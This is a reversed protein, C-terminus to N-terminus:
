YNLFGDINDLRKYLRKIRTYQSPTLSNERQQLVSLFENKNKTNVAIIISESHQPIEKSRCDKLHNILYPFISRNFEEKVTALKSLVKVGNDVTIVSGEQMVSYIADLNGYIEEAKIEAIVSLAIMGGWVLRNNRVKLLKLFDYVYGSILEPKIYGIEYLVKICDNQINKNKNWLNEAIEKIGEANGTEALEKALEQNPVEDNRNQLFAIRQLVSM